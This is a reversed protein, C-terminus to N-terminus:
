ILKTYSKVIKKWKFDKSFNLANSGLKKYKDDDFIKIINEYISNLDNGDCLYGTIGDKMMEPNGGVDTAIVPKKM